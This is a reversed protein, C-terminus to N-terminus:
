KDFYVDRAERMWELYVLEGTLKEYLRVLKFYAYKVKEAEKKDEAGYRLIMYHDITIKCEQKLVQLFDIM